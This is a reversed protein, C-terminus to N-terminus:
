SHETPCACVLLSQGVAFFVQAAVSNNEGGGRGFADSLKCYEVLRRDSNIPFPNLPISFSLTPFLFFSFLLPFLLPHFSPIYIYSFCSYSCPFFFISFFLIPLISSFPRCPHFIAGMSTEIRQCRHNWETM